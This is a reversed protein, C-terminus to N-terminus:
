TKVMRTGQSLKVKYISCKKGFQKTYSKFVQKKYKKYANKKVLNITCGGFGGGMMRSGLVGNSEKAMDVLFDLEDCSVKYQNRLGNHSQFLLNGITELDHAEIAKACLKVRKNEDIVYLAKQYDETTITDKIRDLDIKTVDRLAKVGLQKSVKECVTRRENYASESLNHKVNTNILMLKYTKFDIRYSKSAITRCDLLLASKKIGFM